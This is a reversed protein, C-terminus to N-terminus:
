DALLKFVTTLDDITDHKVQLEPGAQPHISEDRTLPGILTANLPHVGPLIRTYADRVGGVFAHDFYSGGPFRANGSESHPVVLGESLHSLVSLSCGIKVTRM